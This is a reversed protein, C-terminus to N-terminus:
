NQKYKELLEDLGPWLPNERAYTTSSLNHDITEIVYSCIDEIENHKQYLKIQKVSYHFSKKLDNNIEEDNKSIILLEKLFDNLKEAKSEYGTIVQEVVLVKFLYCPEFPLDSLRKDIEDYKDESKTKTKTKSNIKSQPKERPLNGNDGGIIANEGGLITSYYKGGSDIEDMEEQSLLWCEPQMRIKREKTAFYYHKQIDKNTLYGRDFSPKDFFEYKLFHNLIAFAEEPEVRTEEEILNAIEEPATFRLYSGSFFIMEELFIYAHFGSSGHHKKLYKVGPRYCLDVPIVFYDLGLRPKNAM